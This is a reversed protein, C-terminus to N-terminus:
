PQAWLPGIEEGNRMTTYLGPTMFSQVTVVLVRACLPSLLGPGRYFFPALLTQCGLVATPRRALASAPWGYAVQVGSLWAVGSVVLAELSVVLIGGFARLNQILGLITSAVVAMPQPYSSSESQSKRGLSLLAGGQVCVCMCVCVLEGVGCGCVHECIGQIDGAEQLHQPM